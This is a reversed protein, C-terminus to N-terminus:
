RRRRTKRHEDFDELVEDETVGQDSLRKKISDTLSIFVDKRLEFPITDLPMPFFIGAVEGRRLIILPEKSKLAKTAHDRFEKVTMLKMTVVETVM